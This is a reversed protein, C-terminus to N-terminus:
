VHLECHISVMTTEDCAVDTLAVTCCNRLFTELLVLQERAYLRIKKIEVQTGESKRDLVHLLGQQVVYKSYATTHEFM